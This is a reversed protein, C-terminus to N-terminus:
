RAAPAPLVTRVASALLSLVLMAFGGAVCFVFPYYALKLTESVEGSLRVTLGRRWLQHAILAFFLAFVLANGAALARRLGMPLRPAILDVTIHGGTRQTDALSFAVALAGCYGALEYVAGMPMGALRLLVNAGTLGMLFVLAAGSVILGGRCLLEDIQRLARAIM